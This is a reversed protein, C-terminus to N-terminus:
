FQFIRCIAGVYCWPKKLCILAKDKSVRLIWGWMLWGGQVFSQPQICMSVCVCGWVASMFPTHPHQSLQALTHTHTYTHTHTPPLHLLNILTLIPLITLYKIFSHLSAAISNIGGGWCSQFNEGRCSRRHSDNESELWHAWNVIYVKDFLMGGDGPYM